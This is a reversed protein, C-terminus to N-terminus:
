VSRYGSAIQGGNADYRPFSEIKGERRLRTIARALSQESCGLAEAAERKSFSVGGCRGTEREILELLREHVFAHRGRKQTSIGELSLPAPHAPQSSM